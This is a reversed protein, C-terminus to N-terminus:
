FQQQPPPPYGGAPLQNYAQMGAPPIAAPQPVFQPPPLTEQPVAIPPPVQVSPSPTFDQMPSELPGGDEGRRRLLLMLVCVLGLILALISTWGSADDLSDGLSNMSGGMGSADEESRVDVVLYTDQGGFNFIFLYSGSQLDSPVEFSFSGTKSDILGIKASDASGSIMMSWTMPFDIAVEPDMPDLIYNFQATEGAVVTEDPPSVM